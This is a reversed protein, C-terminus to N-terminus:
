AKCSSTTENTPFYMALGPKNKVIPIQSTRLLSLLSTTFTILAKSIFYNTKKKRGEELLSLVAKSSLVNTILSRPLHNKPTDRKNKINFGTHTPTQTNLTKEKRKSYPYLSFTKLKLM